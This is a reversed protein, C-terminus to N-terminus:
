RSENADPLLLKQIGAPGQGEPPAIVLNEYGSWRGLVEPIAVLDIDTDIDRALKLGDSVGMEIGRESVAEALAMMVATSRLAAQDKGDKIYAIAQEGSVRRGDLDIGKAADILSAVVSYPLFVRHHVQRDLYTTMQQQAKKSSKGGYAQVVEDPATFPVAVLRQQNRSEEILTVSATGAPNDLNYLWLMTREPDKVQGKDKGAIVGLAVVGIILVLLAGGMWYLVKYPNGAAKKGPRSM